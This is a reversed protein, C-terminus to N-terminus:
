ILTEFKNLRKQIRKQEKKGGEYNFYLDLVRDLCKSLTEDGKSLNLRDYNKQSVRVQKQYKTNWCKM